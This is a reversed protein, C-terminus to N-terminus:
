QCVGFDGNYGNYMADNAKIYHMECANAYWSYNNNAPKSMFTCLNAMNTPVPTVTYLNQVSYFDYLGATINAKTPAVGNYTVAHVNPYLSLTQDANAYGVGGANGNICAMEDAAGENFYFSYGNGTDEQTALAATGMVAQDLTAHAGSGAHRWCAYMPRPDFGIGLDSWDAIQGSFILRVQAMTLNAVQSGGKTVGNNIFFGFPVVLTRCDTLGTSTLAGTGIFERDVVGGGAPGYLQGWSIQRFSTVQADSAGGTVVVCKTATCVGANCSSEDIMKRQHPDACTTDRNFNTTNGQVALPGDFSAKASVRFNITTGGCNAQQIFHKKDFTEGSMTLACGAATLYNTFEQKWFMYQSSSGWINIDSSSTFTASVTCDGTIPGTTYINGALTGGCGAVSAYYGNNPYVIFSATENYAVTGSTNPSISGNTGTSPTVIYGRYGSSAFTATVTCNGTIPGTTYTNGTLTGGCGTVSMYYGTNPTVTFLTTGNYAVSQPTNPSISGYAGASSTVTHFGAGIQEPSNQIYTTTGDGLCNSSNIGWAWVTGDSKLALTRGEGASVSMWNRDTGIQAPSDRNATDGTGLQGSGNQGWAWLTGDSKLAVMHNNGAAVSVWKNDTGIQVLSAGNNGGAWLTGNSKLAVTGSGGAAVSVWNNDTNVQVPSVVYNGWAWLTGNSKLAVTYSEGAAVSVWNRDGGIQIPSYKDFNTGDGLQGYTNWGWAWLTGDLKLAVTHFGGISPSVTMWNNDTGIQVPFNGITGNGLQGQGDYGWAWLTGDSKLEFTDFSGAAVKPTVAEAANLFFPVSLIIFLLILISKAAMSRLASHNMEWKRLQRM